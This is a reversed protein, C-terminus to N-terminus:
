RVTAAEQLKSLAREYEEPSLRLYSQRRLSSLLDREPTIVEDIHVGASPSLNMLYSIDMRYPWREM